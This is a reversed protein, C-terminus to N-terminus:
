THSVSICGHALHQGNSPECPPVQQQVKAAVSAQFSKLAQLSSAQNRGGFSMAKAVVGAWEEFGSTAVPLDLCQVVRSSALVALVLAAALTTYRRVLVDPANVSIDMLRICAVQLYPWFMELVPSREIIIFKMVQWPLDFTEISQSETVTSLM